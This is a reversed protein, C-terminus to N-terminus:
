LFIIFSMVLDELSRLYSFLFRSFFLLPLLINGFGGILIPMILFFIMFLGHFTINSTYQYATSLLFGFIANEVRLLISLGFGIFGGFIGSLIYLGGLM